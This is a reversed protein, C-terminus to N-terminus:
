VHGVHWGGGRGEEGRRDACRVGGQAGGGRGDGHVHALLQRPESQAPVDHRARRPLLRPEEARGQRAADDALLQVRKRARRFHALPAGAAHPIALGRSFRNCRASHLSGQLSGVTAAKKTRNSRQRVLEVWYGDPDLAFALGKMRGEDPKKQFKVGNALLKETAAYVDDCNFAIHGFGRAKPEEAYNASGPEGADQGTNGNWVKYSPDDETGHNHTLELAVGSMNNLYKESEVTAKELTCEPSTQGERQRELFYVSGLPLPVM